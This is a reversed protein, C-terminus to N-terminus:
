SIYPAGLWRIGSASSINVIAGKGQREMHPLVHKCTLFMNKLNVDNVRDWSKETTAIPRDRRQQAPRPSPQHLWLSPRKARLGKFKARHSPTFSRM